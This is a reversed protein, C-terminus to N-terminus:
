TFEMSCWGVDWGMGDGTCVQEMSLHVVPSIAASLLAFEQDSMETSLRTLELVLRVVCSLQCGDEEM